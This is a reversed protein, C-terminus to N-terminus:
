STARAQRYAAVFDAVPVPRSLLYGQAEDCRYLRLHDLVQQSEVGEAITRLGLSRAMQIVARVIAADDPDSALDRIFSQDIKLKDVRFRKLYALSSYGTGFDDISLRIGMHKLRMVTALVKETDHILISETLELELLAPDLGSEDLARTVSAEIDGRRFQLASLNVAVVVDRMGLRQWNAAERCAERLVWEGIPVILGSEEAQPIFRAPSVLGLDPHNWRLLAEAGVLLGSAIEIQPQYHLVFQGADLARRLNFHMALREEAEENMEENFFRHTNRGADKARFMAMDAKKLLTGLDTGDDPYIAIGMSVTVELELAKLSFPQALGETLRALHTVCAEADPLGPLLILFEDGGQRCLTDSERLCLKLRKAVEVLLQDGVSHGLTDNITKFRDLDVMLLAVKRGSADAVAAAQLMRDQVLSRNPLGTLVDYYALYTAREEAAKRESIDTFIWISGEQPRAPDLARGTAEAWFSSGDAKVMLLSDGVSMNHGFAGYAAEGALIYAEESPILARMSLGIMAGPGYGFIDEFRRNCSVIQRNRLMVIGVLANDLLAEKEALLAAVMEENRRRETVDRGVLVGYCREDVVALCYSLELCICAGPPGFEFAISHSPTERDGPPGPMELRLADLMASAEAIGLSEFPRGILADAPEGLLRGLAANADAVLGEPLALLIVFDSTHDLLTRFRELRDINQRLQPYYSKRFSREGLGIIRDRRALWDDAADSPM